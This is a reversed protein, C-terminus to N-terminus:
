VPDPGGGRARSLARYLLDSVARGDLHLARGIEGNALGEEYKLRLALRERVPLRELIRRLGEAAERREIAGSPPEPDSAIGALLREDGNAEPRAVEARLRDRVVTLVVLGLWTAPRSRGDYARLKAGRDRLLRELVDGIGDEVRSEDVPGARALERRVLHALLPRYLSLFSAWAGADGDACRHLFRQAQVPDM